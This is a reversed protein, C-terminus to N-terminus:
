HEVEGRVRELVAVLAQARQAAAATILAYVATYNTGCSQYEHNSFEINAAEVDLLTELTEAYDERLEPALALEAQHVANLNTTYRPLPVRESILQASNAWVMTWVNGWEDSEDFPKEGTLLEHLKADTARSANTPKTPTTSESM